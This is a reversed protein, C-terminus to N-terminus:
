GQQDETVAVYGTRKCVALLQAEGDNRPPVSGFRRHMRAVFPADAADAEVIHLSPAQDVVGATESTGHWEEFVRRPLYATPGFLTPLLDLRGVGILIICVM